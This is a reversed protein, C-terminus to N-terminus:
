RSHATRDEFSGSAQLFTLLTAQLQFGTKRRSPGLPQLHKLRSLLVSRSINGEIEMFSTM